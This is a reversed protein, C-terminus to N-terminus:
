PGSPEQYYGTVSKRLLSTSWRSEFADAKRDKVFADDGDLWVKQWIVEYLGSATFMGLHGPAPKYCWVDAESVHHNRNRRNALPFFETLFLTGDDALAEDVNAVSQFLTEWSVWCFVDDVLVLDFRGASKPDASIPNDALTGQFLRVRGEYVENGLDVARQSPEVGVCEAGTERTLHDLLDGYQCGFELVRKPRVGAEVLIEWMRRKSPRLTRPDGDAHNRQFFADAEAELYHRDQDSSKM